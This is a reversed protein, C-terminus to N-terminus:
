ASRHADRVCFFGNGPPRAGGSPFMNENCFKRFQEAHAPTIDAIWHNYPTWGM